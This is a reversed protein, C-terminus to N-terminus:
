DPDKDPPPVLPPRHAKNRIWNMARLISRRRALSQELRFKGPFNTFTIGILITILGQGPLLLMALGAAICLVGIMNKLLTLLFSLKPYASTRRLPRRTEPHFYAAPLRIILWPIILLSAAFLLLSVSALALIWPLFPELWSLSM